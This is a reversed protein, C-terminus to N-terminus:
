SGSGKLSKIEGCDTKCTGFLASKEKHKLEVLLLYSIFTTYRFKQEHM